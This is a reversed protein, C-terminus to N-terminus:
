HPRRGIDFLTGQGPVAESESAQPQPNVLARACHGCRIPADPHCGRPGIPCGQLKGDARAHRELFDWSDYSRLFAAEREPPWVDVERLEVWTKVLWDQGARLRVVM